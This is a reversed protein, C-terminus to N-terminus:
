MVGKHNYHQHKQKPLICETQQAIMDETIKWAGGCVQILEM